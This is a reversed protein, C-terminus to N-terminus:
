PTGRADPPLASLRQVVFVRIATPEPDVPPTSPEREAVVFSGDPRKQVPWFGGGKLMAVPTLLRNVEDNRLSTQYAGDPRHQVAMTQLTALGQVFSGAGVPPAPVWSPGHALIENAFLFASGDPARGTASVIQAPLVVRVQDPAYGYLVRIHLVAVHFIRHYRDAALPSQDPAVFTLMSVNHFLPKRPTGVSSIPELLARLENRRYFPKGIRSAEIAAGGLDFMLVSAMLLLGVRYRGLAQAAPVVIFAALPAAFAFYRVERLPIAHLFIVVTVWAIAARRQLRTGALSFALGPILLLTTLRGYAWMNRIYIWIPFRTDTGDYV